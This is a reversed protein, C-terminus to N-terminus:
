RNLCGVLWAHSLRRMSPRQHQCRVSVNTDTYLRHIIDALDPSASIDAQAYELLLKIATPAGIAYYVLM